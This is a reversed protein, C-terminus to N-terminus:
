NVLIGPSDVGGEEILDCVENGSLTNQLTNGIWGTANSFWFEIHVRKIIGNSTKSLRACEGYTSSVAKV